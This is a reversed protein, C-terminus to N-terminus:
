NYIILHYLWSLGVFINVLKPIIILSGVLASGIAAVLVGGATMDKMTGIARNFKPDIYDLLNELATNLLELSLVVMICILVLAWEILSPSVLFMVVITISGLVMEIQFNRESVLVAGVGKFASRFSGGITGQNKFVENTDSM